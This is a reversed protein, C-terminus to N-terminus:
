EPVHLCAALCEQLAITPEYRSPGAKGNMGFGVLIYATLGGISRILYVTSQTRGRVAIPEQQAYSVTLGDAAVDACVYGLCALFLLLAM